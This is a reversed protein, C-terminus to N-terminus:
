AESLITTLADRGQARAEYLPDNGVVRYCRPSIPSPIGGTQDCPVGLIRSRTPILHGSGGLDCTAGDEFPETRMLYRWSTTKVSEAVARGDNCDKDDRPRWTAFDITMM